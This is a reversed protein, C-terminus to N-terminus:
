QQYLLIMQHFCLGRFLRAKKISVISWLLIHDTPFIYEKACSNSGFSHLTFVSLGYRCMSMCSQTILLTPQPSNPLSSVISHRIWTQPPQTSVSSFFVTNDKYHNCILKRTKEYLSLSSFFSFMGPQSSIVQYISPSNTGQQFPKQILCAIALLTSQGCGILLIIHKQIASNFTIM